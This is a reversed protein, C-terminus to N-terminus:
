KDRDSGCSFAWEWISKYGGGRKESQLMQVSVLQKWLKAFFLIFFYKHNWLNWKITRMPTEPAQCFAARRGTELRIAFVAPSLAASYSSLCPSGPGEWKNGNPLIFHPPLSHFLAPARLSSVASAPFFYLLLGHFWLWALEPSAKEKQMLALLSLSFGPLISDRQTHLELDPLQPIQQNQVPNWERQIFM